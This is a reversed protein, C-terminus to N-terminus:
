LNSIYKRKKLDDYDNKVRQLQDEIEKNMIVLENNLMKSESMEHVEKTLKWEIKNFSGFCEAIKAQLKTM